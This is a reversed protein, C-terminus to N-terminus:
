IFFPFAEILYSRISLMYAKMPKRHLLEPGDGIGLPVVTELKLNSLNTVVIQNSRDIFVHYEENKNTGITFNSVIPTVTVSSLDVTEDRKNFSITAEERQEVNCSFFLILIIIFRQIFAM